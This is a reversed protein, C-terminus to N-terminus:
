RKQNEDREILATWQRAVRVDAPERDCDIVDIGACLAPIAALRHRV